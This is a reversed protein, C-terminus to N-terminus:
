RYDQIICRAPHFSVEFLLLSILISLVLDKHNREEVKSDFALTLESRFHSLATPYSAMALRRLSADGRVRGLYM